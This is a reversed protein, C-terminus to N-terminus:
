IDAAMKEAMRKGKPGPVDCTFSKYIRKQKTTGDPQVVEETHSYVQCRWSGSALKKATAMIRKRRLFTYLFLLWRFYTGIAHSGRLHYLINALHIMYRRIYILATRYKYYRATKSELKTQRRTAFEAHNM